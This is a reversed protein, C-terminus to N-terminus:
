GLQEAIEAQLRRAFEEVTVTDQEGAGHRRVSVTDDDKERQGCILMYPVKQVEAGRIKYGVKENRRDVEVRLDGERLREAVSEAYDYYDEGVPIVAVQV